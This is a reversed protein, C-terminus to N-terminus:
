RRALLLPYSCLALLSCPPQTAPLLGVCACPGAAMSSPAPAQVCRLVACRLLQAARRRGGLVEQDQWKRAGRRGGVSGASPGRGM